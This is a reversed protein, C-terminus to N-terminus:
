NTEVLTQDRVLKDIREIASRVKMRFEESSTYEMHLHSLVKELESTSVGPGFLIVQNGALIADRTTTSLAKPMDTNEANYTASKMDVADALTIVLPYLEFIQNVCSYSLSCPVEPLQNHVGVHTTMVGIEPYQDLLIKFPESDDESIKVSTFKDHLDINVAGIGPYHKLVPVIGQASFAAIFDSAATAVAIPDGDCVRDRLVINSHSVDVVPALVVDIGVAALEAASSALSSQRLEATQNCMRKWSPLITFGEGNLRQVSGGEHDVMIVPQESEDVQNHIEEIAAAAAAASIKEGYLVVFGPKFQAIFDLMASSSAPEDVQYPVALLRAFSQLKGADTADEAKTEPIPSVEIQAAPINRKFNERNFRLYAMMVTALLLLGIFVQVRWNM